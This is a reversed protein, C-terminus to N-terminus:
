DRESSVSVTPHVFELRDRRERDRGDDRQDRRREGRPERHADARDVERAVSVKVLRGHRPETPQRDERADEHGGDQEQGDVALHAADEAARQQHGDDARDVVEVVHRRRHLQEPLDRCGRDRDGGAHAHLRERQREDPETSRPAVPPPSSVPSAITATIFTTFKVSPTSPRAAPTQVIEATVNAIM